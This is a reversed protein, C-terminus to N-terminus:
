KDSNNVALFRNLEMRAADGSGCGLQMSVETWSLKRFYRLRVIRAIRSPVTNMWYEVDIRKQNAKERRDSLIREIRKIDENRTFAGYDVGEIHFTRAEYPFNPNSGKVIDVAAGDLRRKLVALDRETEAVLRCADDYEALIHKDM